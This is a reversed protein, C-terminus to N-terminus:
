FCVRKYEGIDWILCYTANIIMLAILIKELQVANREGGVTKMYASVILPFLSSSYKLANLIHQYRKPCNKKLGVNYMILCQRARILYPMAAFCSPVIITELSPPVPSPYHSALIWLMGWDFFVKSMSCMADAFFVDVFPVPRPKGTICTCRPKVLEWARLLVTSSASRIWTTSPLPLLVGVLVLFYFMFIAGITSGAMVQIYVFSTLYLTLILVSAFSLLKVETIELYPNRKPTVVADDINIPLMEDDSDDTDVSNMEDSKNEKLKKKQQEEKEKNVDLMLVYAYDIGFLRFLCVNMGWLAISAIIVTPSRLLATAYGHGEGFISGVEQGSSM